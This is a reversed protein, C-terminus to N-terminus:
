KAFNIILLSIFILCGLIYANSKFKAMCDQPNKLNVSLTQWAMYLLSPFLFITESSTNGSFKASIEIMKYFIIFCLFIILKNWKGFSIATSKISAKIDDEIDQHAYITDYAITWFICGIYIIYSTFELKGAIAAYGVLAGINFTFGLFIQPYKTLRKMLPYICAMGLGVFSIAKATQNLFLWIAFGTILLLGLFIYAQKLTLSGSALPRNKTREVQADLDKDFIDNIVCGAGRMVFSGIAFLFLYFLVTLYSTDHSSALIIGFWCPWM